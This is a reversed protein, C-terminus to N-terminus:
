RAPIAKHKTKFFSWIEDAMEIDGNQKGVIWKYMRSYRERISPETHGGGRVEYLVVETGDRGGSYIERHVTSRDRRMLDPFDYSVPVTKTGDHRIWWNVSERTSLMIGRGDKDSKGVRGGTYPVLPDATGNMFLISVPHEPLKCANAKPMASVVPAAAAIRDSLELAVRLTMNGGNSTGSVYIRNKDINYTSQIKDLLQRIFGIDDVTPNTTADKRCDNWGTHGDPGITGDPIAIVLNERDAIDLWIKYPAKKGNEGTMVDADGLHGHLLLVLPHPTSATAPPLYLDYTRNLGDLQLRNDKLLTGPRTGAMVDSYPVASLVLMPLVLFILVRLSM